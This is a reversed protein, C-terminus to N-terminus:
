EKPEITALMVLSVCILLSIIIVHWCYQSPIINTVQNVIIGVCFALFITEVIISIKMKRILNKKYTKAEKKAQKQFEELQNQKMFPLANNWIDNKITNSLTDIEEESLHENNRCFDKVYYTVVKDFMSESKPM